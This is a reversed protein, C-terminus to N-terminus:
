RRMRHWAFAALVLACALAAPMLLTAVVNETIQPREGTIVPTTVTVPGTMQPTPSVAPTAPGGFLTDDPVPIPSREIYPANVERHAYWVTTDTELRNDYVVYLQNGQCVVMRQGHPDMDRNEIREHSLWQAGDFTSVFVAGNVSTAVRLVNASDKALYNLGGFGAALPIIEVPNSWTMGGDRSWMHMRRPDHWTLHVEDKGFTFPAIDSILPMTENQKAIVRYPEWTQGTDPSRLYGVEFYLGYEQSRRTIGIHIRGADDITASALLYSPEATTIAYIPIPDSWTSGGDTSRMEYIANRYGEAEFSAYFLHLAGSEDAAIRVSGAPAVLFRPMDWARVNAADALPARSYYVSGQVDRDTWILHVINDPATVAVSLNVALDDSTALVDVPTSLSGARDTRYYIESGGERGKGWFIHLNQYADCFLVGNRDKGETMPYSVDLPGEWGPAIGQACVWERGALGASTMLLLSLVLRSVLKLAISQTRHLRRVVM